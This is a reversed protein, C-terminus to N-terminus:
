REQASKAGGRADREAQTTIGAKENLYDRVSIFISKLFKEDDVREILEIITEKYIDKEKEVQKEM